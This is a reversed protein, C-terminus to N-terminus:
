TQIENGELIICKDVIRSVDVNNDSTGQIIVCAYGVQQLLVFYHIIGFKNDFYVVSHRKAMRTYERSCFLMDAVVARQFKEVSVCSKPSVGSKKYAEKLKATQEFTSLKGGIRCITEM